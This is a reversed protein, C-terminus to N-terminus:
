ITVLEYRDCVHGVLGDYEIVVNGSTGNGSLRVNLGLLLLLSFLFIVLVLVFNCFLGNPFSEPM